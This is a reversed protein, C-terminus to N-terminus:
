AVMTAKKKYAQFALGGIGLTLLISLSVTTSAEPVAAVSFGNTNLVSNEDALPDAGGTLTFLGSYFGPATGPTVTVDFLDGTYTSGADGKATLFSPANFAFPTEDVTVGSPLGTYQAATLYATAPGRNTITGFFQFTDGVQGIQYPNQLDLVVQAAAPRISLLLATAVPLLTTIFTMPKM